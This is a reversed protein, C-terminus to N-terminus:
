EFRAALKLIAETMDPPALQRLARFVEWDVRLIWSGDPQETNRGPRMLMDSDAAKAALMSHAAASIKIEIM